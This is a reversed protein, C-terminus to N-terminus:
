PQKIVLTDDREELEIFVERENSTRNPQHLAMMLRGDFARFLM